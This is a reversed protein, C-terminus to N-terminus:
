KQDRLWRKIEDLAPPSIYFIQIDQPFQVQHGERMLLIATEDAKLTTDIQGAIHQNRKKSSQNYSEYVTTFVQQNQLGAALCKSWDMFETLLEINELVELSAGKDLRLKIIQYSEQSLEKISECGSNGGEPVLEHYIRDINGLKLEMDGVHQEVQKWYKLYIEHFDTPPDVGCYILPVFYLKRGSEFQKAEPKEIKGLKETM